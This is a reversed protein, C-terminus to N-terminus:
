PPSVPARNVSNAKVTTPATVMEATTANVKVGM